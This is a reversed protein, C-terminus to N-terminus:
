VNEEIEFLAEGWEVIDDERRRIAIIKGSVPAKVDQPIGLSDVWGLRAGKKVSDGVSVIPLDNEVFHFVGVAPSSVKKVRKPTEDQKKESGSVYADGIIEEIPSKKVVLHVDGKEFEFETVDTAGLVSLFEEININTGSIFEKKNRSRSQAFKKKM